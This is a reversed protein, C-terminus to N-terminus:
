EALIPCCGVVPLKFLVQSRALASQMVLDFLDATHVLSTAQERRRLKRRLAYFRTGTPGMQRKSAPSFIDSVNSM